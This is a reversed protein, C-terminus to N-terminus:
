IWFLFDQHFISFEITAPYLQKSEGAVSCLQLVLFDYIAWQPPAEKHSLM